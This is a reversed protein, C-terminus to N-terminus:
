RTRGGQVLRLKARVATKDRLPRSLSRRPREPRRLGVVLVFGFLAALITALADDTM